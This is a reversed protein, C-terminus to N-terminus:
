PVPPHRRQRMAVSARAPELCAAPPTSPVTNTRGTRSRQPAPRTRRVVLRCNHVPPRTRFSWRRPQSASSSVAGWTQTNTHPLPPISVTYQGQIDCGIITVGRRATRTRLDLLQVWVFDWLHHRQGHCTAVGVVQLPQSLAGAGMGGPSLAPCYGGAWRVQTLACGAGVPRSRPLM